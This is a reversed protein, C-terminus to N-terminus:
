TPQNFIHKDGIGVGVPLPGQVGGVTYSSAQIKNLFSGM